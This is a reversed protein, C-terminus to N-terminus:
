LSCFPQRGFRGSRVSSAPDFYRSALCCDAPGLRDPSHWDPEQRRKWMEPVQEREPVPWLQQVLTKWVLGPAKRQMQAEAAAARSYGPDFHGTHRDATNLHRSCGVPPHNRKLAVAASAPIHAAASERAQIDKSARNSSSPNLRSSSPALHM